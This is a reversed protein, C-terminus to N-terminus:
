CRQRWTGRWSSLFSSRTLLRARLPGQSRAADARLAERHGDRREEQRSDEFNAAIDLASLDSISSVVTLQNASGASDGAILAGYIEGKDM